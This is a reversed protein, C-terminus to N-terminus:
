EKSEFPRDVVEILFPPADAWQAEFGRSIASVVVGTRGAALPKLRMEVEFADGAALDSSVGAVPNGNLMYTADGLVSRFPLLEPHSSLFRPDDGYSVQVSITRSARSRVRFRLVVEEALGVRLISRHPEVRLHKGRREVAWEAWARGVWIWRDSVVGGVFGLLIGGVVAWDVM